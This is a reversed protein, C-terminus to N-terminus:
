TMAADCDVNGEGAMGAVHEASARLAATEGADPPALREDM